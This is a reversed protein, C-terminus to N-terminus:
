RKGAQAQEKLEKELRDMFQKKDFHQEYYRRANEGLMKKNPDAMFRLVAQALGESDQAKACYGCQADQIVSAIEGNAAAIVPKGAAMYTQVKHPLTMSIFPDDTLTVIMADAFGYYEPMENMPRRGHFIVNHANLEAAMSKLKGLESGDGVIHWRIQKHERLLVAAEILTNLNQAIGTNGAFVLDIFSPDEKNMRSALSFQDDAYQPHYVMKEKSIGFKESLYVEFQKSSILIRDAKRYLRKSIWGYYKYILSKENIGGAALSAPWLDMCYLIVRKRRKRAYAYAAYAMMVPSSQNIYVVDFDRSMNYTYISSSIAYSYYNLLRFFINNRRGITFTRSIEVGNHTEKRRKGRRYDQYITGMPYNPVGTVVHVMHGRQVLHECIDNLPFPEPWYYQSVVLIEM